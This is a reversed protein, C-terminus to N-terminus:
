YFVCWGCGICLLLLLISEDFYFSLCDLMHSMHVFVTRKVQTLVKYVNSDREPLYEVRERWVGRKERQIAIDLPPLDRESGGERWSLSERGRENEKM